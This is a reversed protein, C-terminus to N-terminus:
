EEYLVEKIVAYFRDNEDATGITVRICDRLAPNSFRRICIGAELLKDFIRGADKTRMLLFNGFSEFCQLGMLEKLRSSLRAREKKILETREAVVEPNKLVEVAVAQAIANVNYLARVRDIYGAIEPAALMYGIRLAALGFAKSLTRLIILNEYKSLLGTATLGSFEYYAEDVVVIGPTKTLIQEIEAPELRIGTPNNPNCLFVLKPKEAELCSIFEELKMGFDKDLDYEWVRAGSVTADTKYVSFSPNHMAVTEGPNIFTQLLVSILEDSGNGVAIGSVAVGTYGSIAAKLETCSSDPYRNFEMSGLRKFVAERAKEGLSWPTENKDLAIGKVEAEAKYEDLKKVRDSVLRDIM